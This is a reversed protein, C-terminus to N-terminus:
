KTTLLSTCHPCRSANIDVENCCFPCTKTTPEEEVAEEKKKGISQIKNISKVLLFIVFAMIFFNIIATIFAGYRVEAGNINWVLNTFDTKAFTGILPSIVDDTLSKIIAQFAAGIIVAVALDMVNGRLAFARFEEFFKKM